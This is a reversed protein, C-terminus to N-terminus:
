RLGGVGVMVVGSECAAVIGKRGSNRAAKM